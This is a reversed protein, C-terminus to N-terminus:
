DEVEEAHRRARELDAPTNVNFFPDGDPARSDGPFSVSVFPRRGLMSLLSPSRSAAGLVTELDLLAEAPWLACAPQIHGEFDAVAAAGSAGTEKLRPVLLPSLFPTDGPLSVIRFATGYRVSLTRAAADLGALPGLHGRFRDQVTPLGLHAYADPRDTSILIEDVHGQFRDLVRQALSRGAIRLLPKPCSAGM